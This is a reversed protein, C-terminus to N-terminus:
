VRDLKELLTLLRDFDRKGLVDQFRKALAAAQDGHREVIARGADTVQVTQRRKDEPNSTRTVLGRQEMSKLIRTQSPLQLAALEALRTAEIPGHELLVRLIRWQQETIDSEALMKRIPAMVNERARILAFPLSRATRPLDQEQGQPPEDLMAPDKVLFSSM